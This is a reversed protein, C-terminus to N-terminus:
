TAWCRILPAPDHKPSHLAHKLEREFSGGYADSVMLKDELLLYDFRARELHQVLEIYFSGSWDEGGTAGWQDNWADVCFNAFWGLHFKKNSTVHNRRSETSCVINRVLATRMRQPRRRWCNCIGMAASPTVIFYSGASVVLGALWSVDIGGLWAGLPGTFFPLAAFPLMAAFGLFYAILGRWSWRGYVGSPTFLETIAYHGRRVFLYDTLNVATWPLPVDRSESRVGLALDGLAHRAHPNETTTVPKTM